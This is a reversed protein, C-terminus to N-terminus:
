SSALLSQTHGAFIFISYFYLILLRRTAEVVANFQSIVENTFINYTAKICLHSFVKSRLIYSSATM